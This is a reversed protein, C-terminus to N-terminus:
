VFPLALNRGADELWKELDSCLQVTAENRLDYFGGQKAKAWELLLPIILQRMVSQQLTRHTRYALEMIFGKEFEGDGGIVNLGDAISRAVAIGADESTRKQLSEAYNRLRESRDM